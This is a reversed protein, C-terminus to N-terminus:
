KFPWRDMEIMSSWLTERGTATVICLATGSTVTAGMFLMRRSDLLSVGPADEEESATHIMPKRRKAPASFLVAVDVQLPGKSVHAVRVDAPVVDGEYVTVVDGEVLNTSDILFRRGGRCVTATEPCNNNYAKMTPTSNLCPLLCCLVPPCKQPSLMRNEGQLRFRESARVRGLGVELYAQVDSADAAELYRALGGRHDDRGDIYGRMQARRSSDPEARVVLAHFEESSGAASM